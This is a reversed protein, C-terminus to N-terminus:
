RRGRNWVVFAAGLVVVALLAPLQWSAGGNPSAALMRDIETEALEQLASCSDALTYTIQVVGPGSQSWALGLMCAGMPVSAVRLPVTAVGGRALAGAALRPGVTAVDGRLQIVNTTM